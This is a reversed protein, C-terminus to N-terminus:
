GKAARLAAIVEAPDLRKRYDADVYAHLITGDRGIVFTAAVPLEYRDDGNFDKLDIGFKKFLPKLDDALEFVLGFNRAIRNGVDSLVEFSLANKEVTTLSNDPTQPSVAVLSAGLSEIEPLAQQLAKLELNCYPCWAGRYFTLVVAGNGLLKDSSVTEGRVNPLAFAPAKEGPKPAKKGIGAARLREIGKALVDRADDPLGREVAALDDKLTM